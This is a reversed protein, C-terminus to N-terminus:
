KSIFKNQIVKKLDKKKNERYCLNLKVCEGIWYTFTGKKKPLSEQYLVWENGQRDVYMSKTLKVVCIYM